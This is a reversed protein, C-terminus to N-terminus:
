SASILLVTTQLWGLGITRPVRDQFYENYFPSTSLSWIFARLEFGLVFLLLLLFIKLYLAHGLFIM